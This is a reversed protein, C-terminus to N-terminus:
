QLQAAPPHERMAVAVEPALAAQARWWEATLLCSHQRVFVQSLAPPISLFPLWQEPFVDRPGFHFWPEASTEEEETRPQPLERFICDSV